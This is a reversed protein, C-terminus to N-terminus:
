RSCARLAPRPWGRRPPRLAALRWRLLSMRAHALCCPIDTLSRPRIGALRTCRNSAAVWPHYGQRAPQAPNRRSVAAVPGGTIDASCGMMAVAHEPLGTGAVTDIQLVQRVLRGRLAYLERLLADIADIATSGARRAAAKDPAADRRVM